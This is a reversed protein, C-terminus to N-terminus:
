PDSVWWYKDWFFRFVERHYNEVEPGEFSADSPNPLSQNASAPAGTTARTTATTTPTATPTASAAAAAAADYADDADDQKNWSPNFSRSLLLALSNAINQYTWQKTRNFGPKYLVLLLCSCILQYSTKWRCIKDMSRDSMQSFESNGFLITWM